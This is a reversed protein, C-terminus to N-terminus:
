EVGELFDNKELVNEIPVAELIAAISEMKTPYQGFHDYVARCVKRFDVVYGSYKDNNVVLDMYKQSLAGLIGSANPDPDPYTAMKKATPKNVPPKKPVSGGSNSNSVSNDNSEAYKEKMEAVYASDDFKGEYVDASFGLRSLSKGVCTTQLKKLTEGKPTYPLDAAIPFMGSPCKFNAQLTFGVVGETTCVPDFRLTDLGWTSGYPGWLETARKISYM